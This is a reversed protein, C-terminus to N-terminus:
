YVSSSKLVIKITDLIVKIDNIFSIHDVYELDYEIREDWTGSNRIKAQALGTIGPKVDFRHKKHEDYYGVKYPHYTVPPRPGIFSMDGRIINILQPLEDLSTKRLFKGVRTIRSDGESKISLGDGINEANVVMTRFKYITFVNQDFGVREQKFFVPGKSDIKIALAILLFLPSILLLSVGSILKSLVKKVIREYIGKERKRLGM